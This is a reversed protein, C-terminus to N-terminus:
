DVNPLPGRTPMARSRSIRASPVADHWGSHDAIPTGPTAGRLVPHFRRKDVSSPPAVVAFESAGATAARRPGLHIRLRPLPASRAFAHLAPCLMADGSDSAASATRSCARAKSSPLPRIKGDGRHAPRESDCVDSIHLPLKSQM